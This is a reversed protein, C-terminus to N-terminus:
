RAKARGRCRECKSDKAEGYFEKGCKACEKLWLEVDDKIIAKARQVKVHPPQSPSM